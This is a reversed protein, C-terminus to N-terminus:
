LATKKAVALLHDACGINAPNKAMPLMIEVWKELVEKEVNCLSSDVGGLIGETSIVEVLRGGSESVLEEIDQSLNPVHYSEVKQGTARTKVYEGSSLYEEYFPKYEKLLRSPDRVVLDRLHAHVTVFACFLVGSPKLLSLAVRMASIRDLRNPLHYLPGLLLVADFTGIQRGDFLDPDIANGVEISALPHLANNQRALEVLAPSLDRLHVEHGMDALKFAYVGSGGGIDAIKAPTTHPLHSLITHLTLEREM